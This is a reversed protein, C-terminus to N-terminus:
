IGPDNAEILQLDPQEKFRYDVMRDGDFIYRGDFAEGRLMRPIWLVDDAWMEDYPIRDLPTWLPIAEATERAEGSHAEAMYVLVALRYDDVFHFRQRGCLWPTHPTVHLEEQTERIACELPSEDGELRGGPANVKGAGLGRKKRILLLEHDRRIFMLTAFETPTWTLWDIEDVSSPPAPADTM